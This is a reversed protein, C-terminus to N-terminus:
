PRVVRNPLPGVAIDERALAKEFDTSSGRASLPLCLRTIVLGARRALRHAARKRRKTEARIASRIIACLSDIAGAIALFRRPLVVFRTPRASVREQQSSLESLQGLTRCAHLLCCFKARRRDM